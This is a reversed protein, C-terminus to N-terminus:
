KKVTRSKISKIRKILQYFLFGTLSYVFIKWIGIPFRNHTPPPNETYLNPNSFKLTAVVGAHDSAWASKELNISNGFIRSNVSEIDGKIFIYDLRDTYGSTNGMSIAVPLRRADPGTLLTNLGWTFNSPKMADPSANRYDNQIMSWYPSCTVDATQKTPEEVQAKCKKNASPQGGPNPQGNARPDRPDSNFDGMVILPIETSALDSILQEAQVKSIPVDNEGFSSELHTTVFRVPNNKINMDVWSFGRYISMITPIITYKAKFETTGVALVSNSLQSKILIVDAIEFGCYAADTGFKSNFIAPDTAKTLQPVPAIEFGVNKAMKSDKSAVEYKLGASALDTLLIEVFDYITENKSFLNKQCYWTTAEQLGIVDPQETLIEAVFLKSRSPFDTRRMQEWMFQTAAPFDPLLEMAVGVDAGLYLNRSMVKVQAEGAIAPPSTILLLACALAFYALRKLLDAM